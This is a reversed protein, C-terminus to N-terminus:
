PRQPPTTLDLPLKQQQVHEVFEWQDAFPRNYHRALQNLVQQRFEGVCFPQKLVDVLAQAPLPPPLPKLAPQPYALAAFPAGPGGLATITTIVSLPRQRITRLDERLLVASLGESMIQLDNPGLRKSMVQTLTAAARNCLVGAEKPEMRAALVSLGQAMSRLSSPETSNSMAQILITAGEKPEMRAAVAALGHLLPQLLFFDSTKSIAQTLTAAIAAADQSELRTAVGSLVQSLEQRLFLQLPSPDNSTIAQTITVAAEKPEM